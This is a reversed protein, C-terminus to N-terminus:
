RQTDSTHEAAAELTRATAELALPVLRPAAWSRVRGGNERVALQASLGGDLAVAREAGLAGLLAALEPITPGFPMSIGAAQAFRTMVILVRGDRFQGWALRIDRHALDVGRGAERLAAPVQGDRELLTPYSQFAWAVGARHRELAIHTWPVLRVDGSRDFVVASSLPGRGPPRREAGDLVLWGWPLGGDFYGTNM